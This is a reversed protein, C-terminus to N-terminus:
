DWPQEVYKYLIKRVLEFTDEFKQYSYKRESILRIQKERDAHIIANRYEILDKILRRENPEFGLIKLGNLIFVAKSRESKPVFISELSTCSDIAKDNNAFRGRSRRFSDFAVPRKDYAKTFQKYFIKFDSDLERKLTEDYQVKESFIISGGPFKLDTPSPLIAAVGVKGDGYVVLSSDFKNILNLSIGPLPESPNDSDYKYNVDLVAKYDGNLGFKKFFKYEDNFLDINRLTIQEDLRINQKLGSRLGYIPILFKQKIKM